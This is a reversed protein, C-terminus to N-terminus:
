LDNDVLLLDYRFKIPRCFRTSSPRDNEWLVIKSGTKKLKATIRLPVMSFMFITNKDGGSNSSGMDIDYNEDSDTVDDNVRTISNEFLQM